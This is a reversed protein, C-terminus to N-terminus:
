KIFLFKIMLITFLITALYLFTIFLKKLMIKRRIKKKVFELRKDIALLIREAAALARMSQEYTHGKYKREFMYHIWIIYDTNSSIHCNKLPCKACEGERRLYYECCPCQNYYETLDFDIFNIRDIPFEDVLFLWLELSKELHFAENQLVQIKNRKKKSKM